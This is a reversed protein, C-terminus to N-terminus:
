NGLRVSAVEGAPSSTQRWSAVHGPTLTWARWCWPWKLGGAPHAASDAGHGPATAGRTERARVADTFLTRPKIPSEIAAQPVVVGPVQKTASAGVANGPEPTEAPAALALLRGQWGTKRPPAGPGAPSLSGHRGACPSM